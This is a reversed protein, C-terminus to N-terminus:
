AYYRPRGAKARLSTELELSLRKIEGESDLHDLIAERLAPKKCRLLLLSLRNAVSNRLMLKGAENLEDIPKGEYTVRPGVLVNSAGAFKTVAEKVISAVESPFFLEVTNGFPSVLSVQEGVGNDSLVKKIASLKQNLSPRAGGSYSPVQFRM